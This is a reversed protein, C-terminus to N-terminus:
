LLHWDYPVLRDFLTWPIVWAGMLQRLAASTTVQEQPLDRLLAALLANATGELLKELEEGSGATGWATTQWQESSFAFILCELQIQNLPGGPPAPLQLRQRIHELTEVKGGLVAVYGDPFRVDRVALHAAALYLFVDELPIKKEWRNEAVRHRWLLERVDRLSKGTGTLHVRFAQEYQRIIAHEFFDRIERDFVEGLGRERRFEDIFDSPGEDRRAPM